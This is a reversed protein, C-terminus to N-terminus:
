PSLKVAAKPSKMQPVPLSAVGLASLVQLAFALSFRGRNFRNILAQETMPLGGSSLRSALEKYSVGKEERLDKIFSKARAEYFIRPTV